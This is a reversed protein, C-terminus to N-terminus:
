HNIARSLMLDGPDLGKAEMICVVMQKATLPGNRLAEKCIAIAEGKRFLRNIDRLSAVVQRVHQM